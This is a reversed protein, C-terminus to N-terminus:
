YTVFSNKVFMKDSFFFAESLVSGCDDMRVSMSFQKPLLFYFNFPCTPCTFLLLPEFSFTKATPFPDYVGM